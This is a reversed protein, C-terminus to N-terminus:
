FNKYLRWLIYAIAIFIPIRWARIIKQFKQLRWRLEIRRKIPCRPYEGCQHLAVKIECGEKPIGLGRQNGPCSGDDDEKEMKSVVNRDNKEDNDDPPGGLGGVDPNEIEPFAEDKM